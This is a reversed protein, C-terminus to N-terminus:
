CKITKPRAIVVDNLAQSMEEAYSEYHKHGPEINGLEEDNIRERRLFVIPSAAPVFAAGMPNYLSLQIGTMKDDDPLSIIAARLRGDGYSTVLYLFQGGPFWVQGRHTYKTDIRREERFILGHGQASFSRGIKGDFVYADRIAGWEIATVYACIRAFNGFDYRLTLYSGAIKATSEQNYEGWEVPAISASGGFRRGLKNEIRELLSSAFDGAFFHNVTSESRSIMKEFAPRSIGNQELYQRVEAALKRKKDQGIKARAAANAKRSGPKRSISKRRNATNMPWLQLM